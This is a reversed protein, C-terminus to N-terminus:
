LTSANAVELAELLRTTSPYRDTPSDATAKLLIDAIDAGPPPTFRPPIEGTELASRLTSTGKPMSQAECRYLAEILSRGFSFQDSAITSVGGASVEPAMYAPTGAGRLVVGSGPSEAMDKSQAVGFDLVVVRGRDTFMVNTPKFDGHVLGADHAAALGRGANLYCEVIDNVAPAPDSTQWSQLTCGRLYEMAVFVDQEHVGVDFITVINPHVVQALAVAEQHLLTQKLAADASDGTASVLKLAVSRRLEPDEALYVVGMGGRGLRERVVYRGVRLGLRPDGSGGRLPHAPGTPSPFSPTDSLEAGAIESAGMTSLALLEAVTQSPRSPGENANTAADDIPDNAALQDGLAVAMAIIISFESMSRYLGAYFELWGLQVFVGISNGITGIAIGLLLIRAPRSGQWARLGCLSLLLAMALLISIGNIPTGLWQIAPGGVVLFATGLAFLFWEFYQWLRPKPGQGLLAWMFTLAFAIAYKGFALQPPLAVEVGMGLQIDVVQLTHWIGLMALTLMYWLYARERRRRLYLGLHFLAILGYLIAVVLDTLSESIRVEEQKAVGIVSVTPQTGLLLPGRHFRGCAYRVFAPPVWTRIALTLTDTDASVQGLDFVNFDPSAAHEPMETGKPASEGEPAVARGNAFVQHFTDVPVTLGLRKGRFSAPVDVTLRFWIFPTRHRTFEADPPLPLYTDGWDRDDFAPSAFELSDGAFVRWTGELDLIGDDSAYSPGSGLLCLLALAFACLWAGRGRETWEIRGGAGM